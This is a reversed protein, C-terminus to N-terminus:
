PRRKHLGCLLIIREVEDKVGFEGEIANVISKFGHIATTHNAYDLAQAIEAFPLGLEQRMIYICIWRVWVVQNSRKDGLIVDPSMDYINAVTCIVEEARTVKKQTVLGLKTLPKGNVILSVNATEDPHPYKVLDSYSSRIKEIDIGIRPNVKIQEVTSEYHAENHNGIHSIVEGRSMGLDTQMLYVAVNGAWINVWENKWGHRTLLEETTLGYADAVIEVILDGDLVRDTVNFNFNPKIRYELNVAYAEAEGMGHLEKLVTEFGVLKDLENLRYLCAMLREEDLNIGRANLAEWIKANIQRIRERTIGYKEGIDQLTLGESVSDLSYYLRFADKNRDSIPLSNLTELVLGINYTAEQRTEQAQLHVDPALISSDSMGDYLTKESGENKSNDTAIIEDLSQYQFNLNTLIQKVVPVKVNASAAIEEILPERQLETALNLMIKLIKNRAESVHVPQRITGGFDSIARTISQRIWWTAYTSFKFGKRYDFKEVAKLLGINGEQVLDDYDLGRNQYRRYGAIRLVLRLNHLMFKNRANIDGSEVRQALETEEASTLLPYRKTARYYFNSEDKAEFDSELTTEEDEEAAIAEMEPLADLEPDFDKKSLDETGKPFMRSYAEEENENLEAPKERKPRPTSEHIHKHVHVHKHVVEITIKVNIAVLLKTIRQIADRLKSRDKVTAAPIMRTIEEPSITGSDKAQLLIQKADPRLNMDALIRDSIFPTATTEDPSMIM